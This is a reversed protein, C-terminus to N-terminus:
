SRVEARLKKLARHITVKVASPSMGTKDSAENISFGDVKVLRLVERQKDSLEALLVDLDAGAHADEGNEDVLFDVVDDINSWGVQHRAHRGFDILKYRAIAFLWPTFLQASDYTARKAHLAILTDQCLDEAAAESSLGLRALARQHYQLVLGRVKVLLERYAPADGRQSRSMLERLDEEQPHLRANM